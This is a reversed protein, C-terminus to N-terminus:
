SDREGILRNIFTEMGTNWRLIYKTPYDAKAITILEVKLEPYEDDIVALISSIMDFSFVFCSEGAVSQISRKYPTPAWIPVLVCPTEDIPYAPGPLTWVICPAWLVPREVVVYLLPLVRSEPQIHLSM